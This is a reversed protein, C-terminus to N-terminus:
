GPPPFAPLLGREAVLRNIGNLANM